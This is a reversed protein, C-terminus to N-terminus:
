WAVMKELVSDPVKGEIVDRISAEIIDLGEMLEEESITLPPAIRLVNGFRGFSIIVLGREWARWCVKMAEVRAPERRERDRVLDVGILLGKGRVDGILEYAEMMERLRRMAAEGLREARETLEEGEIVDLTALAASCAVPNAETTFLHAPAVWREMLEARAILAAMPLGAAMPKAAIVADPEVKWHEIAFMRGTRAFGTQVEEDFFLIGQEECLGKLRPWFEEPPIIIGADGQIPELIFTAVEDPPLVMELLTEIHGLCHLGCDPYELGFYCRYCDPYPVHYVEPLMPGLRRRMRPTIASLTLAGYTTGHYSGLFSVVKPRGTSARALKIAGDNADSGSLSFSVRKRFGGPTLQTLREALAVALEYYTYGLTNHILRGAQERIAEVVRPHCHGVNNVAAGSLFDLYENGDVDWLRSGSAREVVLPYYAIRSAQSIVERDRGVIELSKELPKM